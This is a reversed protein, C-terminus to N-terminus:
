RATKTETLFRTKQPGSKRLGPSGGPAARVGSFRGAFFQDGSTHVFKGTLGSVAVSVFITTLPPVQPECPFSLRFHGVSTVSSSYGSRMKNKFRVACKM